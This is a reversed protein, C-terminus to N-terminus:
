VVKGPNLIGKPDLAQKLARMMGIEVPSKTAAIEDRKLQGVGHEASISGGMERVIGHVIGNMESWLALFEGKDMEVPQSLNFHVNGDGIHGFPVPRIGPLRESVAKTARAIFEAMRSVPVSVDHKISGGEARQVDSLSERLRRFDDRQTESQAIAADSVLGTELGEALAAEMTEDLRATETGATMEILVYWPSPGSPLVPLPDSAGELHRTVFEVGIRPVLEFTTVNGGSLGDAVRLLKVAAEVSPVAAFATSVARPRPFLKLVAGTIIGLTGESGMFLHRLDYGTNDKRLGTLGNWIDGNALVVELGLVLDRANGYRLVQTGGANTALNGGIQCSGESALSLPFLRDAERAAEQAEALTVGADVTLTNNEADVARIRKMRALSLVIEEGTADPVQGGVLGTNGGQPVVHLGTEHALKMIASVEETNAPRLVAAARGKYLERREVLYPAMDREDAVFGKEGVIEKLRQLTEPTPKM